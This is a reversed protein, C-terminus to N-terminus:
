LLRKGVRVHREGDGRDEDIAEAGDERAQIEDHRNVLHAARAHGPEAQRQEAPREIGGAHDEHQGRRHQRDRQHQQADLANQANADEIRGQAAIRDEELVQEPEVGVRHNVDLNQRGEAHGAFDDGAQGALPGKTVLGDREGAQGDHQDPEQDPAVVHKIGADRGVAPQDEREEAEGDGNGGGILIKLQVNM